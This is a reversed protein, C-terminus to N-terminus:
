GQHAPAAAQPHFTMAAAEANLRSASRLFQHREM